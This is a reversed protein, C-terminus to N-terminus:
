HDSIFGGTTCRVPKTKDEAGSVVLGPINDSRHIPEDVWQELGLAEITDLFTTVEADDEDEIHINLDGMLIINSHNTKMDVMWQTFEDLFKTVTNGNRVAYQPRYEGVITLIIDKCVEINM